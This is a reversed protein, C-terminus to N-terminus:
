QSILLVVFLAKDNSISILFYQASNARRVDSHLNHKFLSAVSSNQRYTDTSHQGNIVLLLLLVLAVYFLVERIM